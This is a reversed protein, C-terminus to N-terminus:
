ISIIRVSNYHSCIDLESWHLAVIFELNEKFDLLNTSIEIERLSSLNLSKVWFIFHSILCKIEFKLDFFIFMEYGM